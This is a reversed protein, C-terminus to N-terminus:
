AIDIPTRASTPVLDAGLAPRNKKGSVADVPYLDTNRASNEDSTTYASGDATWQLTALDSAFERTAWIAHVTLAPAAAEQAALPMTLLVIAAVAFSPRMPGLFM